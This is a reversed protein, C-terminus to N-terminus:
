LVEYKGQNNLYKIYTCGYAEGLNDLPAFSISTSVGRFYVRRDDDFLLFSHRAKQARTEDWDWSMLGVLDRREKDTSIFDDTIKWMTDGAFVLQYQAHNRHSAPNFEKHGFAATNKQGKSFANLFGYGSKGALLPLAERSLGRSLSPGGSQPWAIQIDVLRMSVCNREPM